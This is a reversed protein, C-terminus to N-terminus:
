PKARRAAAMAERAATAGREYADPDRPPLDPVPQDHPAGQPPAFRQPESRIAKAVYALPNPVTRGDLLERRVKAAHGRDPTRGTTEVILEVIRGEIQDNIKDLDEDDDSGRADAVQPHPGVDGGSVVVPPPQETETETETNSKAQADAQSESPKQELVQKDNAQNAARTKGGKRGAEQKKRRIEDVEAASRQHQLYDHVAWHPGDVEILGATALEKIARPTGLKRMAATPVVGDTLHRSCWCLTEVYLRFASDSLGVVKPHDPMGDHLKIYTRSDAM